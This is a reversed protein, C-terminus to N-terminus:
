GGTRGDQGGEEAVGENDHGQQVVKTMRETQRVHEEEGAGGRHQEFDAEAHCGVEGNEKNFPGHSGAFPEALLEGEQQLPAVPNFLAADQEGDHADAKGGQM